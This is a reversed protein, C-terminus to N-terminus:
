PTPGANKVILDDLFAPRPPDSAPRPRPWAWLARKPPKPTKPTANTAPKKKAM